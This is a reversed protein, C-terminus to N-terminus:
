SQMDSCDCCIQHTVMHFHKDIYMNEGVGSVPSTSPQLGLPHDSLEETHLCIVIGNLKQGLVARSARRTELCPMETWFQGKNSRRTDERWWFAAATRTMKLVEDDDDDDDDDDDGDDDDDDDDDDDCLIKMLDCLSLSPTM